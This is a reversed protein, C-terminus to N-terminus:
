PLIATRISGECPQRTQSEPTETVKDAMGKVNKRKSKNHLAHVLSPPPCQGENMRVARGPNRHGGKSPEEPQLEWVHAGHGPMANHYPPLPPM